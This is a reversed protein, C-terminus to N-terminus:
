QQVPQRRLPVCAVGSFPTANKHTGPKAATVKHLLLMIRGRRRSSPTCILYTRYRVGTCSDRGSTCRKHLAFAPILAPGPKAHCSQKCPVDWSRRSINGCTRTPAGVRGLGYIAWFRMASIGIRKGTVVKAIRRPPSPGLEILLASILFVNCGPYKNSFTEAFCHDPVKRQPYGSLVHRHIKCIRPFFHPNM